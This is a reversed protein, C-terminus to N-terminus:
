VSGKVLEVQFELYQNRNQINDITGVIKWTEGNMVVACTANVDTRYRITVTAHSTNKVAESSVSETGHAFIVKAWVNPNTAFDAYTVKQSGGGDKTVSGAKLRIRTNLDGANLLFRSM